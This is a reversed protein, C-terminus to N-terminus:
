AEGDAAPRLPDVVEGIGGDRQVNRANQETGVAVDGPDPVVLPVQVGV